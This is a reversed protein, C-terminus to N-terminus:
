LEMEEEYEIEKNFNEIKEIAEFLDTDKNIGLQPIEEKLNNYVLFTGKAKDILIAYYSVNNKRLERNTEDWVLEDDETIGTRSFYIIEGLQMIETPNRFINDEALETYNNVIYNYLYSDDSFARLQKLNKDKIFLRINKM